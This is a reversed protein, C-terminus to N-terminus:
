HRFAIWGAFWYFIFGILLGSYAGCFLYLFNKLRTGMFIAPLGESWWALAFSSQYYACVGVMSWDYWVSENGNGARAAQVAMGVSPLFCLPLLVLELLSFQPANRMAIRRKTKEFSIIILSTPVSSM